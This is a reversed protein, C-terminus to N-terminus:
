KDEDDSMNALRDREAIADKLLMKQINLDNTLRKIEEVDRKM